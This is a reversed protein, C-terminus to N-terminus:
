LQEQSEAAVRHRHAWAAAETRSRCDTKSLIHRVHHAVTHPSIFLREAIAQNSHGACLLRLVALERRSLGEPAAPPAAGAGALERQLAECRRALAAMGLERGLALAADLQAKAAAANGGQGALWRAWEFRSHALWPRGGCREDLAVAAQLHVAANADDGALAALMGRYRDVAGFCAINTGTVVNRGAYPELLRYLLAARPRDGLRACVEAAFVINTLWMGDHAIGVFGDAALAEYAERAPEHLDLETCILALGPQWLSDRPVSGVLGRLVPLVEGLRGQHRRLVFIQLSYAGQANGPLFRQGIAFTEGALREADAFRGEYAALLTLSALGMAQMFPQRIADAVRAHVQALPRAAALEGKEVLDGFYWGTLADVWEMHGAREAVELAERACRLREDLQAPDARAPLIAALAKFLPQPMALERALAVARRQAANAQPQRGCFICARCLAALLDVRLAADFGDSAALAEELLAAAQEGPRSIRWGNNEFGLAAQAFLDADGLARALTAAELFTAASADNEGAHTQVAGLALLLAGHRAREAPLWREQLQLALRYCRLAEEYAMLAVARAAAQQAIDLARAASGVPLAAAAHYALQALVADLGGAHRAELSEAIRGHLAVRRSATLEDYLVERILVHSFQYQPGPPVAEIVRQALAEDLRGLLAAEGGAGALEALLPLDFDRGICAAIALLECCPASLQDLRRGIVARIGSPVTEVRAAAAHPDGGCPRQHLFRLTEVLYLPNGETRRHMTAIVAPPPTVASAAAVMRETEELSLGQLPLRCFQRTNLLEALTAALPHQRSLGAERYSGLLLIRSEGVDQAIFALLRLSSADAWHLNDLILLLPRLAAVQRWFHAVAAFLRFRAHDGEGIAPVATGPPLREALEPAIEVAAAAERGLLAPLREDRCARLCAQMARTWPLFPPAGPEELCRGWLTLMGRRLALTAVEQALRTKGIGAEGSLMVVRGRGALAGGLADHALQLEGRRGVFPENAGAAAAGAIPAAGCAPCPADAHLRVRGCRHCGMRDLTAM